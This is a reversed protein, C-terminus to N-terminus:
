LNTEFLDKKVQDAYDFGFEQMAIQELRAMTKRVEWQEDETHACKFELLAQKYEREIYEKTILNTM